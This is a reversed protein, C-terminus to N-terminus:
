TRAQLALYSRSDISVFIMALCLPGIYRSPRVALTTCHAIVVLQHLGRFSADLVYEVRLYFVTHVVSKMKIYRSKAREITVLIKNYPAFGEFDRDQSKAIKVM